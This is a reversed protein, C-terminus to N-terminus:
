AGNLFAEAAVMVERDHGSRIRDAPAEYDLQPNMGIFWARVTEPSDDDLLRWAVQYAARLRDESATSMGEGNMWKHVRKDDKVNAMHAVLKAGFLEFLFQAIDDPSSRVSQDHIRERSQKDNDAARTSPM